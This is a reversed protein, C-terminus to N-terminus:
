LVSRSSTHLERAKLLDIHPGLRGSVNLGLKLASHQFFHLLPRAREEMHDSAAQAAGLPNVCYCFTRFSSAANQSTLLTGHRNRVHDGPATPNGVGPTGAALYPQM